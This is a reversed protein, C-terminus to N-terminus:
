KITTIETDIEYITSEAEWPHYGKAIPKWGYKEYYGNHDTSLYLKKYGLKLAELRAHELMESGKNSGRYEEEIYLACLWPLLDQRSIFDNTILGYGGIIEENKLMLYWRPLPSTTAISNSICDDYIRRDIKWWATFYDVARQLYEPNNRVGVIKVVPM